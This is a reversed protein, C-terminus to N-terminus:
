ARQSHFGAGRQNLSARNVLGLLSLLMYRLLFVVFRFLRPRAPHAQIPTNRYCLPLLCSSLDQRVHADSIPKLRYLNFGHGVLPLGDLHDRNQPAFRRRTLRM